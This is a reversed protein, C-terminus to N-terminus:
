FDGIPCTFGMAITLAHADNVSARDAGLSVYGRLFNASLTVMDADLTYLVALDTHARWRWAAGVSRFIQAPSYTVGGLLDITDYVNYSVRTDALLPLRQRYDHEGQRGSLLPKVHVYGNADYTKNDTDVRAQTFPASPWFINGFLNQMQLRVTWAPAPIAALDLDFSFGRGQPAVVDRDFLADRSYAYDVTVDNLDYDKNGTATVTGRMTGSILKDSHFLSAGVTLTAWRDFRATRFVRVGNSRAHEIDIDIVYRKGTELPLKNKLLYYLEATDASFRAEGDDRWFLGAGWDHYAVGSEAQVHQLATNGSSIRGSWDTTFQRLAIPESYGFGSVRAYLDAEDAVSDHACAMCFMFAIFTALRM